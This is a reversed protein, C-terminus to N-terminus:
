GEKAWQEALKLFKPGQFDEDDIYVGLLPSSPPDCDFEGSTKWEGQYGRSGACQHCLGQPGAEKALAVAEELSDAEVDVHMSITAEIVFTYKHAKVQNKM